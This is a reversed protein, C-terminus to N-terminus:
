QVYERVLKMFSRRKAIRLQLKEGDKMTVIVGFLCSFFWQKKISLINEYEIVVEAGSFMVSFVLRQSTCHIYGSRRALFETGFYEGMFKRRYIEGDRLNEQM